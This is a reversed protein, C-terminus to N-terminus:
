VITSKDNGAFLQKDTLPLMVDDRAAEFSLFSFCFHLITSTLKVRPREHHTGFQNAAVIFRQCPPYM